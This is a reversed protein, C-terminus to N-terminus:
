EFALEGQPSPPRVPIHHVDGEGRVAAAVLGRHCRNADAEFCMLCTRAAGVADRLAALSGGQADLYILYDRTYRSWDGSARYRDRIPKPCGLPQLHTYRIGAAALAAGLEPKAFGAKRSIPAERIDVLHEIDNLALLELFQALALGEYGITYVVMIAAGM